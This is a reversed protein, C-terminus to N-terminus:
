HMIAKAEEPLKDLSVTNKIPWKAEHLQLFAPGKQGLSNEDIECPNKGRTIWDAISLQGEIWHWDTPSTGEQIECIRVAAYTNFGYSDKQIM